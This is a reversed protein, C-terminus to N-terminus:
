PLPRQHQSRSTALASKLSRKALGDFAKALVGCISGTSCFVPGSPVHPASLPPFVFPM